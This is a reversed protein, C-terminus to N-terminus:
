LLEETLDHGVQVRLQLHARPGQFAIFGFLDEFRSVELSQGVDEVDAILPQPQDNLLTGLVYDVRIGINGLFDEIVQLALVAVAVWLARM